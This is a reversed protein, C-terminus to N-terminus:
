RVQSPDTEQSVWGVQKLGWFGICIAEAVDHRLSTPRKGESWEIIRRALADAHKKADAGSRQERLLLLDRRWVQADVQILEIGLRRCEAEWLLVLDGGGEVVLYALDGAERIVSGVAKKLRSRSGYNRSRYWDLRGERTFCALGTRVGLDVALLSAHISLM